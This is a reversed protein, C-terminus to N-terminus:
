KGTLATEKDWSKTSCFKLQEPQKCLRPNRSETFLEIDARHLNRYELGRKRELQHGCEHGEGRQVHKQLSKALIQKKKLVLTYLDSM